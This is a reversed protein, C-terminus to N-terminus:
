HVCKLLSLQMSATFLYTRLDVIAAAATVKDAVYYHDDLDNDDVVNKHGGIVLTHVWLIQV